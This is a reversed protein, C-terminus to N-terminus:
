FTTGLNFRFSETKDSSNKTIPEALSFNIPGVVTFWDLSIGISSRIQDSNNISSDYDVGWLNAMDLFLAFDINQANPLIQPLTSKANLVFMSNGGIYDNGDKPGIKGSVFGRLKSSPVFIRESLKIDDGTLSSANKITLGFSSINDEYLETYLKYSYRNTITNTDSLVPLNLDYRSRFGDSTKFVQNRKDYDLDLNVFFDLYNGAQKKQRASATSDTSIKELYVDSSFGFNLDRLYEFKTGLGFGTKKTKYGFDTLRDTELAQAQFFISKDSNKYNPNTLSFSGKFTETSVSFNTNLGIGKGLFNNEKVAFLVTSGETGFGAGAAVEGTPKEEVNVNIIRSNEDKGILVESDVNRFFNLSKINNVSKKFLIENFPDGEDIEFQNRIVNEKTINNGFINIREVYFKKTEDIIFKLNIQDNEINEEVTAKISKYENEITIQDIEDLIDSVTNISYNKGKIKKFMLNLSSFNEPDFELPLIYSLEGFYFKKKADINFILEFQQDDTLKAITSKISANYFGKNKYFNFLLQRDFNILNENLYKKGSIIKWFKYEESAILNKLKSDKFIKNGVFSIKKIKAKDGLEINYTINIRGNQLEEKYVDVKSFFYGKQRLNFLIKNKDEKLTINNLSSRSKLQLDKTILEKLSKSKIGKFNISEIIPLEVVNIELKNNIVNVTINEFFNTEYLKKLTKNLYNQDINQGSKFEIFMLITNKSIRENGKIIVENVSAAYLNKLVFLNFIIIFFILFNKRKKM